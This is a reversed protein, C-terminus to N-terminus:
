EAAYNPPVQVPEKPPLIYLEGPDLILSGDPRASIPEWFDELSYGARRDVDIVGTHRKARYGVFGGSTEGSLDVSVAVGGTLDADDIDVLRETAHLAELDD